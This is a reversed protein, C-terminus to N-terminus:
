ECNGSPTAGPPVLVDVWACQEEAGGEVATETVMLALGYARHARRLEKVLLELGGDVAVHVSTGDLRVIERGSLEPYYNLGLM